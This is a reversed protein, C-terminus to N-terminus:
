AAMKGIVENAVRRAMQDLQLIEELQDSCDLRNEAQLRNLVDELLEPIQLFGIHGRLFADVAVEDAANFVTGAGDGLAMVHRALSLAPFRSLDPKEFDLRGIMGLDLEAVPASKRTPYSLCHAIPGCMDPVSMHALLSGDCYRVMGHVISQPHVLVDLQDPEVPFLHYAEILELGKNVMSASDITIRQGMSWNPHKLAREPTAVRMEDLTSTRFPGGSATLIVKDVAKPEDQEFVQFIANHESDMPLLKSGHKEALACVLSGACVMTEKNALAINSGAKIGAVTPELGTAGVMASVLVDVKRRAVELVAERGASVEVDTDSLADKLAEFKTSDGIVARKAGTERCAQALGAVNSGAVLADVEYREPSHAIVKLTSTGVSGTAGLVSLTKTM